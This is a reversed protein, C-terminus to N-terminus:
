AGNGGRGLSALKAALEGHKAVDVPTAKDPKLERYTMGPPKADVKPAKAARIYGWLRRLTVHAQEGPPTVAACDQVSQLLWGVPKRKGVPLSRASLELPDCCGQLKPEARIAAALALIDPDYGDAPLPPPPASRIRIQSPAEERPLASSQEPTPVPRSPVPTTNGSGATVSPTVGNRLRTVRHKTLERDHLVQAKSPNRQLFDHAQMDGNELLDVLGVSLLRNWVRPSAITLAIAKSFRGDTLQQSCWACVRCFAGWAENGAALVKANFASGDDVRFWSM